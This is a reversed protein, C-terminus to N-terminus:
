VYFHLNLDIFFKERLLSVASGNVKAFCIGRDWLGVGEGAKHFKTGGKHFGGCRPTKAEAM